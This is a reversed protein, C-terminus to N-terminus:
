KVRGSATRLRSIQGTSMDQVKNGNKKMSKRRKFSDVQKKFLKQIYENWNEPLLCVLFGIMLLLIGGMKMGTFAIKYFSADIVKTEYTMLLYILLLIRKVYIMSIQVFQSVKLRHNSHKGASLIVAFLLGLTLFIDFSCVPGIYAVVNATLHLAGAATLHIWPIHRGIIQHM